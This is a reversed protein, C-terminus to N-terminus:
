KWARSLHAALYTGTHSGKIAAVEEPTGQAILRGGEEGGEPGFDVVWDSEAILDLNHEIVIVTNGADVLRNLLSCLQRVDWPHLGTTPEDLLYLAHGQNKKGLEKALKIRQAEGGSLTSTPQGLQLYDLGVECLLELRGAIEPEGFVSANERVTGDLVDSISYGNYKVELVEDTFRKGRCAPCRVEVDPLFHMDLQLTGMGQCKECRGGPTNFSFHKSSLKKKRAEPLSAFLSRIPTFLETYTAINSRSIRGIPSQDVAIIKDIHELGDIREHKGPIVNTGHLQVRAAPELIDFLLTSKGSGSVGTVTILRGLPFAVTMNKLNHASANRITIREQNGTRRQREPRGHEEERLFRGTVSEPSAKLQDLTGTGVVTGGRKGSGPGIDIIHDAARMVETDHEIVLVTNGLDRLQKLVRILKGTDRPHLGTTPEDLVYLVGTLGSGLLSALRLRQAEGGSLSNAQRDLTLYDLGVDIQRRIRETLDSLIPELILRGEGTLQQRMEELWALLRGLSYSAVEVISLGHITVQRSEQRLRTGKCHTCIQQIFYRDTKGSSHLEGDKERHRRLLQTVIGEFNGKGVSKPPRIDPFHAKFEESGAGYLLFDRTSADFRRIPMNPEFAFGYHKAAASLVDTYYDRVWNEWILVGGEPISKDEDLLQGIDVTTIIGLGTCAECAGEPKNFSFHAMKLKPMQTKCHPCKVGPTKTNQEELEEQDMDMIAPDSEFDPPVTRGCSPCVRVGLKAYLVRLYTYVETVTGVTSRPNRNSRHQSVSISPSLGRISDVRPKSIFDTVMGMSEMYQRQCEKQLTDMALSSKGSGSLGTLVILKRKPIRLSINKLNHERAGRIEIYETM